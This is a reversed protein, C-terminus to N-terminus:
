GLIDMLICLDMLGVAGFIVSVMIMQMLAANNPDNPDLKTEAAWKALKKMDTLGSTGISAIADINKLASFLCYFSSIASPEVLFLDTTAVGFFFFKKSFFLWFLFIWLM